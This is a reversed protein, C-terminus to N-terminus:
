AIRFVTLAEERGRLKVRGLSTAKVGEPLQAMTDGSALAIVKAGPDVHKGYEQLRAAVNVADGIVTYNMRSASGIDGVVVKGTHIGIRLRMNLASDKEIQEALATVAAIAKSAHDPQESPAGWFAMVGDGLFKDITGDRDAIVKSVTEFYGNLYAATEEASLNSALSTFGALDTFVITMERLEINRSDTMGEEILRTVLQRPVYKAFANLAGISGNFAQNVDNLEALPSSPLRHEEHFELKRLDAAAEALRGLPRGLKRGVIFSLAAGALLAALAAYLVVQTQDLAEGFQDARYLTGIIWGDAPGTDLETYIATYFGGFAPFLRGSIQGDIMHAQRGVDWILHLPTETMETLSPLPTEPSASYDVGELGHVVIVNNRGSLLFVQQRSDWTMTRAVDLFVARPYHVFLSQGNGLNLEATKVAEAQGERWEFASWAVDPLEDAPADDMVSRGLEFEANEPLLKKYAELDDGNLHRQMAAAHVAITRLLVDQESFFKELVAQNANLIAAAQQDLLRGAIRRDAAAMYAIILGCIAVLLLSFVLGLAVGVPIRFPKRGRRSHMPGGHQSLAPSANGPASIDKAPRKEEDM